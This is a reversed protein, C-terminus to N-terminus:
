LSTWPSWGPHTWLVTKLAAAMGEQQRASICSYAVCFCYEPTYPVAVEAVMAASYQEETSSSLVPARRLVDLIPEDAKGAARLASERHLICLNGLQKYLAPVSYM